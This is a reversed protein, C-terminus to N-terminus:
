IPKPSHEYEEKLASNQSKTELIKLILILIIILHYVLDFYALGLFAGGVAYGIFSVQIMSALDYAWKDEISSKSLKMIKSATRWSLFFIILFAGLGIFGHEGLIEFYISHADQFKGTESDILDPAFRMYNEATFSEFGGGMFRTSAMRYAFDWALIRGTASNDRESESAGITGMREHWSEPMFLFPFPVLMLIAFFLLLKKRSKLWLFSAIAAIALLAGRSQTGLIAIPILLMAVLLGIRIWLQTTNLYLYWVLPLVMVLALGIETNGSIFGGSPGLVHSGGGSTITFIGGKVGYFGISVVIIWILSHIKEKDGMVWLTIFTMLQIKFVKEWQVWSDDPQLSFITTILMWFNFFLLWGVIPTWVFRLKKFSFAVTVLTVAGIVMAFPFSYAFGWTLRHPSMYGIWSWLLVGIHPRSFVFPLLGFVILTVLLDRL